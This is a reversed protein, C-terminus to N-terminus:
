ESTEPNVIYYDGVIIKEKDDTQIVIESIGVKEEDEKYVIHAHFNIEYSKGTDTKVTASPMISIEKPGGFETKEINPKTFDDYLVVKGDFFEMVEDLQKDLDIESSSKIKECFMDKLGETDDDNLYDLVQEFQEKSAKDPNVNTCSSFAVLCFILM